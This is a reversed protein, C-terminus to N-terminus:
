PREDPTCKRPKTLPLGAANEGNRDLLHRRGIGVRAFEGGSPKPQDVEALGRDGIGTWRLVIGHSPPPAGVGLTPGVGLGPPPRYGPLRRIASKRKCRGRISSILALPTRRASVSLASSTTVRTVAPSLMRSTRPTNRSSAGARGFGRRLGCASPKQSWM